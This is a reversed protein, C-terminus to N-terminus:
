QTLNTYQELDLGANLIDDANGSHIIYNCERTLKKINPNYKQEIYINFETNIMSDVTINRQEALTMLMTSTEQNATIQTTVRSSGGGIVNNFIDGLQAAGSIILASLIGIIMITKYKM